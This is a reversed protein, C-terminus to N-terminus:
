HQPVPSTAQEAPEANLTGAPAFWLNNTDVRLYRGVVTYRNAAFYDLIPQRVAPQAEICALAPRFRQLDLGALAKPEAQAIDMSLFDFAQVRASALLDNLTVTPAEVSGAPAGSGETFARTSSAVWPRKGSLLLRATDSSWDSVFATFFKTHPRNQEWGSRYRDQADVAIGSWGLDHELFWTNSFAKYDGAGVDVFTGQRKDQFFDRAIWEELFQSQRSPGYRASLRAEEPSAQTSAAAPTQSVPVGLRERLTERVTRAARPPGVTIGFVDLLTHPNRSVRVAGMAFLAGVVVALVVLGVQILVGRLSPSAKKVDPDQEDRGPVENPGSLILDAEAAPRL